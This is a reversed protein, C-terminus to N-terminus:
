RAYLMQGANLYLREMQMYLLDPCLELQSEGDLEWTGAMCSDGTFLLADFINKQLHTELDARIFYWINDTVIRGVSASFSDISEIGTHADFLEPAM